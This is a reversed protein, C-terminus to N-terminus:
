GPHHLFRKPLSSLPEHKPVCFGASFQCQGPMVTSNHPAYRETRISAGPLPTSAGIVAPHFRPIRFHSKSVGGQFVSGPSGKGWTQPFPLGSPALGQGLATESRWFRTAIAIQQVCVAGRSSSPLVAVLRQIPGTPRGIIRERSTANSQLAWYIRVPPDIPREAISQGTPGGVICMGSHM